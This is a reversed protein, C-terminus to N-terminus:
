KICHITLINDFLTNDIYGFATIRKSFTKSTIERECIEAIFYHRIKNIKIENIEYLRFQMANNLKQYM